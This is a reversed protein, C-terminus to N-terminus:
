VSTHKVQKYWNGANKQEQPVHANYLVSLEAFIKQAADPDLQTTDPHVIKALQRYVMKPDEMAQEQTFGLNLSAVFAAYANVYGPPPVTQGQGQNSSSSGSYFDSYVEEWSKYQSGTLDQYVARAASDIYSAVDQAKINSDYFRKLMSAVRRYADDLFVPVYNINNHKIRMLNYAIATYFYEPSNYEGDFTADRIAKDDIILQFSNVPAMGPAINKKGRKSERIFQRKLLENRIFGTDVSGSSIMDAIPKLDQQGQEQQQETYAFSQLYEIYEKEIEDKNQSIFQDLAANAEQANKVEPPIKFSVLRDPRPALKHELNTYLDLETRRTELFVSPIVSIPYQGEYGPTNLSIIRDPFIDPFKQNYSANQIETLLESYEPERNTAALEYKLAAYISSKPNSVMEPVKAIYNTVLQNEDYNPGAKTWRLGKPSRLGADYIKKNNWFMLVKYKPITKRYKEDRERGLQVTISVPQEDHQVEIDTHYIDPNIPFSTGHYNDVNTIQDTKIALKNEPEAEPEQPAHVIDLDLGREKLMTTYQQVKNKPVFMSVEKYLYDVEWEEPDKIHVMDPFDAQLAQSKALREEAQQQGSVQANCCVLELEVIGRDNREQKTMEWPKKDVEPQGPQEQTTSVASTNIGTKQLSAINRELNNDFRDRYMWWMKKAGYWTFGLAKIHQRIPYTNGAVYVIPKQNASHVATELTPTSQAIKYWNM